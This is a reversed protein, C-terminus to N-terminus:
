GLMLTVAGDREKVFRQMASWFPATTRSINGLKERVEAPDSTFAQFPQEALFDVIDGALV